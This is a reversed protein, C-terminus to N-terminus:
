SPPPGKQGENSKRERTRPTAEHENDQAAAADPATGMQSQSKYCSKQKRLTEAEPEPRSRQDRSPCISPGTRKKPRKTVKAMHRATDRRNDTRQVPLDRVLRCRRRNRPAADHSEHKQAARADPLRDLRTTQRTKARHKESEVSHARKSARMSIGPDPPPLM